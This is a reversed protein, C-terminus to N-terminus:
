AVAADAVGETLDLGAAVVEDIDIALCPHGAVPCDFAYCPSCPTPQRLLRNPSSRPQWQSELETGAYLVVAPAGTADALHMPASNNTLVLGARKVLAAFQSFELRGVLDVGRSGLLELLPQSEQRHRPMGALAVQWGRVSAVALAAEVMSAPSYTRAPCSAWPCALIFPEGPEVGLGSLLRGTSEEAWGPVTVSLGADEAPFGLHEVLALNRDVQHLGDEQPGSRLEDTLVSGAFEKSAGARLPIGALYCIFGALHPTQSFSTFIVAADFEGAALTAPLELERAPDFPLSGLDQWLARHTLVDDVWPLLEAAQAGAPSALLTISCRPLGRKLARLAPGIMLVDGLNDLRVALLRRVHSWGFGLEQRAAKTM